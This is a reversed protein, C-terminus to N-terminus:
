TGKIKFTKTSRKTKKKPKQTEFFSDEDKSHESKLDQVDKNSIHFSM